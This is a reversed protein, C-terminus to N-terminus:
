KVISYHVSADSYPLSSIKKVQHSFVGMEWLSGKNLYDGTAKFILKGFACSINGSGGNGRDWGAAFRLDPDQSSYILEINAIFNEENVDNIKYVRITQIQNSSPFDLTVMLVPSSATQICPAVATIVENEGVLASVPRTQYDVETQRRSKSDLSSISQFSESNVWYFKGDPGLVASADPRDHPSIDIPDLAATMTKDNLTVPYFVLGDNGAMRGTIYIGGTRPHIYAKRFDIVSIGQKNFYTPLEYVKAKKGKRIVVLTNKLSQSGLAVVTGTTPDISVTSLVYSPPAIKQTKSRKANRANITFSRLGGQSSSGVGLVTNQSFASNAVLSTLFIVLGVTKLFSNM